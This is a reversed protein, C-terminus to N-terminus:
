IHSTYCRILGPILTACPIICLNPNRFPSVQSHLHSRPHSSFSKSLKHCGYGNSMEGVANVRPSFREMTRVCPKWSKLLAWSWDVSREARELWSAKGEVAKQDGGV